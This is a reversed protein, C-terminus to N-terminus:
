DEFFSAAISGGFACGSLHICSPHLLWYNPQATENQGLIIASEMFLKLATQAVLM